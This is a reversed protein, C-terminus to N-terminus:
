YMLDMEAKKNNSLKIILVVVVVLLEVQYDVLLLTLM